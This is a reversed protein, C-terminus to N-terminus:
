LFNRLGYIKSSWPSYTKAVRQITLITDEVDHIEEQYEHIAMAISAYVEAPIHTEVITESKEGKATKRIREKTVYISFKATFSFLTYLLLLALFVVSMSAIALVVGYPDQQAFVKSTEGKDVFANNNAPSTKALMGWEPEGDKLRGYSFNAPMTLPYVVSDLCTTQDRDYLAIYNSEQLTFNTHFIGFHTKNDAYFIIHSLPAVLTIEDGEPIKYKVPNLTDNTLYCGGIDIVRHTPNYIEIWGSRNGYDDVLNETNTVLLENIVLNLSEASMNVSFLSLLLLLTISLRMKIYNYIM